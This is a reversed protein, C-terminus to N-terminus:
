IYSVLYEMDMCVYSGVQIDTIEPICADIEYTGTGGGTLIECSFGLAKLQRFAQVGNDMAELYKEKREQFSSVHQLHGLYCQVGFLELNKQSGIYKALSVAFDKSIGTRGQGGDIDILVKLRLNNKHMVSQLNEVIEQSDVVIMLNPASQVCNALREMKKLTVIPSTILIDLIGQRVLAEAESLKVACVGIAGFEMQMKCISSSKHTKCHPRLNKNFRRAHEQMAKLHHILKDHDLTLCPTDLSWKCEGRMNSM